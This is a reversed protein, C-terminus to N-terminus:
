LITKPPILFELYGKSFNAKGNFSIKAIAAKKFEILAGNSSILNSIHDSLDPQHGVTLVNEGSLSNVFTILDKTLSGAALTKDTIIEKEYKFLEAIIEASEVARVYPSSCIFDPKDIFYIWRGAAAKITEKGERTLKRDEDKKGPTSKEAESHRVLLLNM